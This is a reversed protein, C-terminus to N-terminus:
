RHRRGPRRHVRQWVMDLETRMAGQGNISRAVEGKIGRAIVRLDHVSFGQASIQVGSFPVGELWALRDDHDTTMQVLQQQWPDLVRGGRRLRHRAAKAKRVPDCLPCTDGHDVKPRGNVIKFILGPWGRSVRSISVSGLMPTREVIRLKSLPDQYSFYNLQVRYGRRSKGGQLRVSWKNLWFFLMLAEKRIERSLLLLVPSASPLYKKKAELRRGRSRPLIFGYIQNRLEAPLRSLHGLPSPPEYSM